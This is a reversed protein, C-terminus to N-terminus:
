YAVQGCYAVTTGSVHYEMALHPQDSRRLFYVRYGRADAPIYVHGPTPCGLGTDTWRDTGIALLGFSQGAAVRNIADGAAEGIAARMDNMATQVDEHINLPRRLDVMMKPPPAEVGTHQLKIVIEDALLRSLPIALLSRTPIAVDGSGITCGWGDVVTITVENTGSMASAISTAACPPEEVIAAVMLSDGPDRVQPWCMDRVQRLQQCEEISPFAGWGHVLGLLDPLSPAALLDPGGTFGGITLRTVPIPTQTTGCSWWATLLAIAALGGVVRSRM